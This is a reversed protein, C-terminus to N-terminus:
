IGITAGLRITPSVIKAEIFAILLAFPFAPQNFSVVPFVLSNRDASFLIADGDSLFIKM